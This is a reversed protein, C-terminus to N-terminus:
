DKHQEKVLFLSIKLKIILLCLHAWIHACILVFIIVNKGVSVNIFSCESRSDFGISYSSYKGKVPDFNKTLKISGFLFSIYFRCKFRKTM